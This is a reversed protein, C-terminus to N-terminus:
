MNKYTKYIEKALEQQKPNSPKKDEIELSGLMEALEDL